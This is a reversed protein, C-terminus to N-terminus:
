QICRTHTYTHTNLRYAIERGEARRDGVVRGDASVFAYM